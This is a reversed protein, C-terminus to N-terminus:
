SIQQNSPAPITEECMFQDKDYIVKIVLSCGPCMAVGKGNKLGEKTIAFIDGRPSPHFYTELGKDYQFDEIEVEDHFVVM